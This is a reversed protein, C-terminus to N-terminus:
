SCLHTRAEPEELNRDQLTLSRDHMFLNSFEQVENLVSKLREFASIFDTVKLKSVSISENSPLGPFLYSGSCILAYEEDFVAVKNEINISEVNCHECLIGNHYTYPQHAIRKLCCTRCLLFPCNCTFAVIDEKEKNCCNCLLM